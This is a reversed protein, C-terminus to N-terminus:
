QGEDTAHAITSRHQLPSDDVHQIHLGLDIVVGLATGVRPVRTM